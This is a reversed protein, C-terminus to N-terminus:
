TNFLSYNNKALERLSRVRSEADQQAFAVEERLRGDITELITLALEYPRFFPHEDWLLMNFIYRKEKDEYKEYIKGYDYQSLQYTCYRAYDFWNDEIISDSLPLAGFEFPCIRGRFVQAYLGLTHLNLDFHEMWFSLDEKSIFYKYKAALDELVRDNILSRNLLISQFKLVADTVSMELRQLYGKKGLDNIVFRNKKGDVENEVVDYWFARVYCRPIRFKQVNGNSNVYMFGRVLDDHTLTSQLSWGLKTSQLHFPMSNAMVSRAKNCVKMAIEMDKDVDLEHVKYFPIVLLRCNDFDVSLSAPCNLHWRQRIYDLLRTYRMYVKRVLRPFYLDINAYDKTIYKTVYRIGASSSVRGLNDGYKVFGYQWADEVLRYFQFASMQSSLFFLAHHHPRHYKEGYESTVIYRLKIGFSDLRKRLRKLFLQILRKSFIPVGEFTPLYENAFTLTYFFTDMGNSQWEYFCRVFWDARQQNRCEECYGCPVTLYMPMEPTYHNSRCLIKKPSVCM